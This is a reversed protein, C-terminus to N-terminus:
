REGQGAKFAQFSDTILTDINKDLWEAFDKTDGSRKVTLAISSGGSKIAVGPIPERQAARTKTGRQTSLILTAALREDSTTDALTALLALVADVTLADSEFASALAM